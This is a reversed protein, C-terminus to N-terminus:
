NNQLQCSPLVSQLLLMLPIPPLKKGRKIAERGHIARKRPISASIKRRSQAKKLELRLLRAQKELEIRLPTHFHKKM